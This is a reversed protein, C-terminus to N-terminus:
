PGTSQKHRFSVESASTVDDVIAGPLAKDVLERPEMRMEVDRQGTFNCLTRVGPNLPMRNEGKSPCPLAIKGLSGQISCPLM